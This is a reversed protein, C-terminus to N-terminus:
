GGRASIYDADPEIDRGDENAASARAEALAISYDRRVRDVVEPRDCVQPGIRWALLCSLAHVFQADFRSVTTINETYEVEADAYDCLILLGSADSLLRYPVRTGKTDVRSGSLVRRLYLAGTPYRYSHLWESARLTAGDYEEVLALAAMRAAFPWDFARLVEQRCQDYFRRCALAEKSRETDIDAVGVAIGLHGLALTAIDSSSTAM